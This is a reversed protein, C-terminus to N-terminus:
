EGPEVLKVREVLLEVLKRAKDLTFGAKHAERLIRLAIVKEVEHVLKPNSSWGQVSAKDGIEEMLQKTIEVARTEKFGADVLTRYILYERSGFRLKAQEERLAYIKKWLKKAEEYLELSTKLKMRWEELLAEVKDAVSLYIPDRSFYLKFRSLGMILASAKEEDSIERKHIFEEFFERDITIPTFVAEKEIVELSRSIAEITKKYYKGALEEEHSARTFNKIYFTYIDSLWKYEEREETTLKPAILEYLRRLVHYNETFERELSKDRALSEARLKVQRFLEEDSATLPRPGVLQLLRQLRGRFDQLVEEVDFVAGKLDESEYMAFAKELEDFIGIFDIVLGYEKVGRYPRNVRAVAQLLRHGKLPKDLYMVQLIPADFGTLLMDTVILIRPDDDTRFKEIIRQVADKPDTVCHKEMLERKYEEIIRDKEQSQFSV